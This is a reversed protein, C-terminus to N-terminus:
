KELLQNGEGATASLGSLAYQAADRDILCVQKLALSLDEVDFPKQVFGALGEDCLQQVSFSKEVGSAFVVKVSPNIEQLAKFCDEGTMPRMSLDLVVVGIDDSHERYREIAQESSSAVWPECDFLRLMEVTTEAVLSEDDVVLVRPHKMGLITPLHILAAPAQHGQPFYLHFSTGQNVESSLTM